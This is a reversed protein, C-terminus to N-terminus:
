RVTDGGFFQLLVERLKGIVRPQSEDCAVRTALEQSDPRAVCGANLSNEDNTETQQVVVRRNGPLGIKCHKHVWRVWLM